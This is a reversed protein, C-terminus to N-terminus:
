LDADGLLRDTIVDLVDQRDRQTITILRRGGRRRQHHQAYPIATGVVLRAPTIDVISGAGRTTLSGLLRQTAIMVRRDGHKRRVTNAKLVRWSGDGRSRFREGMRNHFWDVVDDFAPSLDGALDDLGYLREAAARAGTVRIDLDVSM